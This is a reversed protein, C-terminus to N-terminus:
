FEEQNLQRPLIEKTYYLMFEQFLIGGCWNDKTARAQLGHFVRGFHGHWVSLYISIFFLLRNKIVHAERKAITEMKNAALVRCVDGCCSALRISSVVPTLPPRM